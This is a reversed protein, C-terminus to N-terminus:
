GRVEPDEMSITAPIEEDADGLGHASAVEEYYQENARRKAEPSLEEFPREQNMM